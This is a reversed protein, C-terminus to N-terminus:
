EVPVRPGQRPPSLQFPAEVVKRVSADADDRFWLQAVGTSPVAGSVPVQAQFWFSLDTSADFGARELTTPTVLGDRWVVGDSDVLRVWVWGPAGPNVRGSFQLDGDEQREVQLWPAELVPEGPPQFARRSAPLDGRAAIDVVGKVRVTLNRLLRATEVLGLDQAIEHIELSVGPGDIALAAAQQGSWDSGSVRWAAVTLIKDEPANHGVLSSASWPHDAPREDFRLQGRWTTTGGGRQHYGGVPVVWRDQVKQREWAVTQGEWRGVRWRPDQAMGALLADAIEPSTAGFMAVDAEIRFRTSTTALKELDLGATTGSLPPLGAEIPAPPLLLPDGPLAQVVPPAAAEVVPAVVVPTPPPTRPCGLMGLPIVLCTPVVLLQRLQPALM